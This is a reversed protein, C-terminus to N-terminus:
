LRKGRQVWVEVVSHSSREGAPHVLLMAGIVKHTRVLPMPEGSVQVVRQDLVRAEGSPRVLPGESLQNGVRQGVHLQGNRWARELVVRGAAPTHQFSELFEGRLLDLRVVDRAEEVVVLCGGAHGVQQVREQPPCELAGHAPAQDLRVRGAVDLLEFGLLAITIDGGGLVCLNALVGSRRQPAQHVQGVDGALADAVTPVDSIGVDALGAYIHLLLLGLRPHEDGHGRIEFFHNGSSLGDVLRDLPQREEVSAVACWDRVGRQIVLPSRGAGQGLDLVRVEVVDASSRSRVGLPFPAVTFGQEAVGGLARVIAIQAALFGRDRDRVM